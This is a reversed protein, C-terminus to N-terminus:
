INNTEITKWFDFVIIARVMLNKTLLLLAPFRSKGAPLGASFNGKRVRNNVHTTHAIHGDFYEFYLHNSVCVIRHYKIQRDTIFIRISASTAARNSKDNTNAATACHVHARRFINWYLGYIFVPVRRFTSVRLWQRRAIGSGVSM